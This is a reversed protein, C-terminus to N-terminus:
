SRWADENEQMWRLLEEGEAPSRGPGTLLDVAVQSLAAYTIGDKNWTREFAVTDFPEALLVNGGTEARRLRLVQAARDIDGIYIAALRPAAIPAIQAAALSGTAAYPIDVAKLKDLLSTLGRPELFTRTTNSRAFAYDQAWRQILEAWKVQTVPGRPERVILADPDLFTFVRSVSALSTGSRKALQEV